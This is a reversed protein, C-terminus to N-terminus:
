EEDGFSYGRGLANGGDQTTEYITASGSSEGGSVVCLNPAKVEYVNMQPNIYTKKM